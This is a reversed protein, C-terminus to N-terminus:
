RPWAYGAPLLIADPAWDGEKPGKWSGDKAPVPM